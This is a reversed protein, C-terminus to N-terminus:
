PCGDGSLDLGSRLRQGLLIKDAQRKAKKTKGHAGAKRFLAGALHGNRPKLSGKATKAAM